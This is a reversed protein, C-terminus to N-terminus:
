LVYGGGSVDLLAGTVFAAEASMLYAIAHGVEEATAFRGIPISDRAAAARDPDGAVPEIMATETMGPRVVNVRIGRRAVERALGRSFVDVAGKSAAYVTRGTRGGITSAMSSVNVIGRNGADPMHRIAERCCLMVGAVNLQLVRAIEAADLDEVATPGSDTGASNIAGTVPGLRERAEAFLRLVDDERGMDGQVVVADSGRAELADVVARAGPENSGYQIAFARGPGAMVRAAAAGIGGSGGTVVIVERMRVGEENRGRVVVRDDM